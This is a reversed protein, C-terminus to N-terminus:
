LGGPREFVVREWGAGLGTAAGCRGGRNLTNNGTQWCLRDDPSGASTDCPARNVGAGTPAFGWSPSGAFYWDVGNAPHVADAAAGVDFLVDARAAMAGLQWTTAGTARCALLLVGQDCAQQVDFLLRGSDYGGQYCPEFGGAALTDPDLAHQIGSVTLPRPGHTIMHHMLGASGASLAGDNESWDSEVVWVRGRGPVDRYGLTIVGAMPGGLPVLGPFASVDYGCGTDGGPTAEFRNEEWFPDFRGGQVAPMVNDRCAGSRVPAQVAFADFAWNFIEDSNGQETIVIGGGALYTRVVAANLSALGGRTVLMAQTRADPACGAVVRLPSGGRIFARADRASAGCLLVDPRLPERCTDELAASPPRVSEAVLNRALLRVNPDDPADGWDFTTHLLNGGCRRGRAIATLSGNPFAPTGNGSFTAVTSLRTDAPAGGGVPLLTHFTETAAGARFPVPLDTLLPDQVVAPLVATNLGRVEGAGTEYASFGLPAVAGAAARFTPAYGQGFLALGDSETVLNGGYRSFRRLATTVAETIVGWAATYRGIFLTEFTEPTLRAATEANWPLAEAAFGAARLAGTVDAGLVGIRRRERVLLMWQGGALGSRGCKRANDDEGWDTGDSQLSDKGRDDFDIAFDDPADCTDEGEAYGYDYQNGRPLLAGTLNNRRAPALPLATEGPLFCTEADTGATIQTYWPVRYFSLDVTLPADDASPADRCAFRVDFQEGLPRLGDWVSTRAAVPGMTTLDPHWGGRADDLVVNLASGVLTWGGNDTMQDCFVDFTAGGAGAPQVRYVGNARAGRVLADLCSRYVTCDLQEDAQGDCDNDRGDCIERSPVGPQANCVLQNGGQCVTVGVAACGGQEISCPVGADIPDDDVAGDCDDDLGNCREAQAGPAVAGVCRIAGGTCTLTGAGCVGPLGTACAGGTGAIPGDDAVGDCDDDVFNCTEPAPEGARASCVLAGTAADCVFVGNRSCAGLGASCELGADAVDDVRADCDDDLGNCVEDAPRVEGDCPLWGSGDAACRQRGARCRGVDATGVPGGYCPREAGPVCACGGAVDDAQGDCDDDLGNCVEPTPGLVAECLPVGDRCAREGPGCIGPAGSQCAEGLAPTDDDIAGNCDDDIGNCTEPNPAGPAADCTAAGSGDAACRIVGARACAGEGASCPAGLAMGEDTEGDCDDDLGNCREEGPEGLAAECRLGGDAACVFRGERLCAGVGTHCVDGRGTGEDTAGDCDDDVDNCREEVPPGAVADCRVAGQGPDCLGVGEARCAGSGVVCPAGAGPLDAAEDVLGDCDDDQGNCIEPLPRVEGECPGFAVGDAGCTWVGGRCAGVGDTAVPGGYCAVREGPACDCGAPLDLVDDADTLGDCDDDLRNCAELGPLGQEFCAGLRGGECTRLGTQCAGVGATGVPGDYCPESLVLGDPADDVVGNCDDDVGNCQEDSPEVVSACTLVADVCLVLGAGCAGPLGTPCGTGADLPDDDIRGDCDDDLGNCIEPNPVCAVADATPDGADPFPAADPPDAGDTELAADGPPPGLDTGPRDADVPEIRADPKGPRADAIPIAGDGRPSAADPATGGGADTPPEAQADAVPRGGAASADLPGSADLAGAGAADTHQRGTGDASTGCAWLAAALLAGVWRDGSSARRLTRRM